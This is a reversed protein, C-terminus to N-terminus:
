RMREKRVRSRRERIEYPEREEGNVSDILDIGLDREALITQSRSERKHSHM